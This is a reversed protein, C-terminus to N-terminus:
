VVRKGCFDTVGAETAVEWNGERPWEFNCFLSGELSSVVWDLLLSEVCRNGSAVEEVATLARWPLAGDTEIDLDSGMGGVLVVGCVELERRGLSSVAVTRVGECAYVAEAGESIARDFRSLRFGVLMPVVGGRGLSLELSSDIDERSSSPGSLAIFPPKLSGNESVTRPIERGCDDDINACM